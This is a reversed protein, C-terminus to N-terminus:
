SAAPAPAAAPAALKAVMASFAGSIAAQLAKETAPIDALLVGVSELYNGGSTFYTEAATMVESLTTLGIAEAAPKLADWGAELVVKAKAELAHFEDSIENPM